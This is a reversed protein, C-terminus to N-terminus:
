DEDLKKVFETNFKDETPFPNLLQNEHDRWGLEYFMKFYHWGQADGELYPFEERFRKLTQERTLM